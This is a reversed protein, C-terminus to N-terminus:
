IEKNKISVWDGPCYDYTEFHYAQYPNSIRDSFPGRDFFLCRPDLEYGLESPEWNRPYYKKLPYIERFFDAILDTEDFSERLISVKCNIFEEKTWTRSSKRKQILEQKYEETLKNM